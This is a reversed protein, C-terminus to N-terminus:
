TKALEVRGALAVLQTLDVMPPVHDKLPGM